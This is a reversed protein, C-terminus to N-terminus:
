NELYDTPGRLLPGSIRNEYSEKAKCPRISGGMHTSTLQGNGYVCLCQLALLEKSGAGGKELSTSLTIELLQRDRKIKCKCLQSRQLSSNLFMNVLHKPLFTFFYKAPCHINTHAANNYFFTQSNFVVKVSLKGGLVTVLSEGPKGIARRGQWRQVHM